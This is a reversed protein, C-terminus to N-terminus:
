ASAKWIQSYPRRGERSSSLSSNGNKGLLHLTRGNALGLSVGAHELQDIELLLDGLLDVALDERLHLGPHPSTLTGSPRGPHRHCDHQLAPVSGALAVQDVPESLREVRAPELDVGDRGGVLDLLVIGPHPAEPLLQRGFPLEGNEVARPVPPDQHLPHFAVHGLALPLLGVLLDSLELPLQGVRARHEHLEPKVDALLLLLLAEPSEFVVGGGGPLHALRLPLVMPVVPLPELGDLLHEFLGARGVGGPRHHLGRLPSQGPDLDKLGHEM